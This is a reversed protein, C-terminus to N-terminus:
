DKRQMAINNAAATHRQRRDSPDAGGGRYRANLPVATAGVMNIAFIAEVYEIRNPSFIGVHEGVRVGAGVLSRAKHRANAQLSSFTLESDPFVLAAKEPWKAAAVDLLDHLKM